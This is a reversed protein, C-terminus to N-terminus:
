LLYIIVHRVRNQARDLEGFLFLQFGEVFLEVFEEFGLLQVRVFDSSLGDVDFSLDCFLLFLLLLFGNFLLFFLFLLLFCLCQGFGLFDLLLVLWLTM